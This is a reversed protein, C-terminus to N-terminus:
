IHMLQSLHLGQRRQWSSLSSAADHGKSLMVNLLLLWLLVVFMKSWHSQELCLTQYKM